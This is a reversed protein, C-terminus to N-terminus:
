VYASILLHTEIESYDKLFMFLCREFKQNELLM